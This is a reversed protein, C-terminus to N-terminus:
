TYTNLMATEMPGDYVNIMRLFDWPNKCTGGERGPDGYKIESESVMLGSICMSLTLGLANYLYRWIGTTFGQKCKVEDFSHLMIKDKFEKGMGWFLM